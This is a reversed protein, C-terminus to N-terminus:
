VGRSLGHGNWLLLLRRRASIHPACIVVFAGSRLKRRARVTLFHGQAVTHARGAPIVLPTLDDSDGLVLPSAGRRQLDILDQSNANGEISKPSIESGLRFNFGRYDRSAFPDLDYEHTVFDYNRSTEIPLQRDFISRCYCTYAHM